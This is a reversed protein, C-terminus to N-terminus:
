AVVKYFISLDMQGTLWDISIGTAADIGGDGFWVTSATSLALNIYILDTGGAATPGKKIVVTTAAPVGASEKASYGVIRLGPAAAVAANVDAVIADQHFASAARFLDGGGESVM